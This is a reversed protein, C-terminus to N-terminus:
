VVKKYQNIKDLILTAFKIREDTAIRRNFGNTCNILSDLYQIDLDPINYQNDACYDYYSLRANIYGGFVRNSYEAIGTLNRDKTKKRLDEIKLIYGYEKQMYNFAKYLTESDWKKYQYFTYKGYKNAFNFYSGYRNVAEKYLGTRGNEVLVETKPFMNKDNSYKMIEECLEDDSLKNPPIFVEQSVQKFKLDLYLSFIEFLRSQIDEYKGQFIEYDIGILTHNYERYLKEKKIRKENYSKERSHTVAGKAYGWVEVHIEHNEQLYFTFDSRLRKHKDGFPCKERKYPIDNAILYQAVMYEYVSSNRFGRDDILDSSDSYGMLEKIKRIGGHVLLYNNNIHLHKLVEIQKPFRDLIEILKSIEHKINELNDYYGEPKHRIKINELNYGLEICYDDVSDGHSNIVQSINMGDKNNQMGIITGHKKIYFDLEKIRNEKYNWYAKDGRKLLGLKQRHDNIDNKKLHQCEACSYKKVAEYANLVINYAKYEIVKQNLCYDCKINALSPSTPSLDDIKVLIATGRKYVLKRKVKNYYRPINYGLGELRNINEPNLVVLAEQDLIM